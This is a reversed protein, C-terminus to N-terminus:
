KEAKVKLDCGNKEQGEDRCGVFFYFQLVDLVVVELVFLFAIVVLRFLSGLYGARARCRSKRRYVKKFVTEKPVELIMRLRRLLRTVNMLIGHGLLRLPRWHDSRFRVVARRLRYMLLLYM